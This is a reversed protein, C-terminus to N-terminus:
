EGGRESKPRKEIETLRRYLADEYIKELTSLLLEAKEVNIEGRDVKDWVAVEAAAWNTFIDMFPAANLDKRFFDLKKSWYCQNWEAYTKLGGASPDRAAKEDCERLEGMLRDKATPFDQGSVVISSAFILLISLFFKVRFLRRM